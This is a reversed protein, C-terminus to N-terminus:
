SYRRKFCAEILDFTKTVLRKGEAESMVGREYIAGGFKLLAKFPYEEGPTAFIEGIAESIPRMRQKLCIVGRGMIPVADLDLTWM